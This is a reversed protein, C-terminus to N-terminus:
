LLGKKKEQFEKRDINGAAYQMRLTEIAADKQRQAAAPDIQAAVPASRKAIWAIILITGVVLLALFLFGIVGLFLTPPGGHMGYAGRGIYTCASAAAGSAYGYGMM